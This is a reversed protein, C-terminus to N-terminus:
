QKKFASKLKELVEKKAEEPNKNEIKFEYFDEKIEGPWLATIKEKPGLDSFKIIVNVLDSTENFFVM